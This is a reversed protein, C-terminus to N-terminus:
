QHKKLRKSQSAYFLLAVGGFFIPGIITWFATTYDHELIPEVATFIIGLSLIILIFAVIINTWTKNKFAVFPRDINQKRKFFPFAAILFLYPVSTSINGMDTLILYFKQAGSGGFSILLVIVSVITAQVWMAYAPMGNKNLKTMKEPWLEKPSGLIFSKLPSYTLIFFSGFYGLFMSLGTFRALISGLLLSTSHSLGLSQGFFLGLNNMLVYTINGLNVDDSGIVKSWNTSIGWLLISLSYFVTVFITAILIGKPFNKEPKDLDDVIGGMSEMGAYAFIAYVVFSFVAIPSQFGVNPSKIFSAAGHIPEQLQGHNVFLLIVSAVVFIGTLIMVFTGGISGVKAISDIGKSSFFTIALMWLLALIGVTQIPTLGIFHWTQTKDSGTLLTTLPIWVKSSTSVLWIVWSSLWIFTGVFATKEGVSESLWSYFGGHDDKFASGYEAFMLGSPLFFVIAGFIYWIISAYGMQAFAVTTNAFGYITSFIMLILGTLSIKSQVKM